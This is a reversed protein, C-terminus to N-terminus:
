QAPQPAIVCVHQAALLWKGNQKVFTRTFRRPEDSVKGDFVVKSHSVGTLIVTNGFVHVHGIEHKLAVNIIKKSRERALWDAKSLLLGTQQTYELEDSLYPALADADDKALAQDIANSVKIVEQKAQEASEPTEEAAPSNLGTWCVLAAAPLVLWVFKRLV